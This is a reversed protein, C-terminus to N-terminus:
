RRRTKILGRIPVTSPKWEPFSASGPLVAHCRWSNAMWAIVTTSKHSPITRIYRQTETLHISPRRILRSNCFERSKQSSLSIRMHQMSFQFVRTVPLSLNSFKNGNTPPPPGVRFLIYPIENWHDINLEFCMKTNKGYDESEQKNRKSM